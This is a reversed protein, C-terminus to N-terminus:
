FYVASGCLGGPGARSFVQYEGSMSVPPELLKEGEVDMWTMEIAGTQFFFQKIAYPLDIAIFRKFNIYFFHRRDVVHSSNNSYNLVLVELVIKGPTGPSCPTLLDSM